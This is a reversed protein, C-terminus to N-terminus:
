HFFALQRALGLGIQKDLTQLEYYRIKFSAVQIDMKAAYIEETWKRGADYKTENVGKSITELM